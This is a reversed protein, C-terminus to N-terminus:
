YSVKPISHQNAYLSRGVVSIVACCLMIFFGVTLWPVLSVGARIMEEEVYTNSLVYIDLNKSKYNNEFREVMEMEYKKVQKDTWSDDHEARLQVVVMKVMKMNSVHEKVAEIPATENGDDGGHKELLKATM